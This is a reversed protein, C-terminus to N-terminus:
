AITRRKWFFMRGQNALWSSGTNFGGAAVGPTKENKNNILTNEVLHPVNKVLQYYEKSYGALDDLTLKGEQWMQYFKHKLLSSKEIEGNIQDMLLTM